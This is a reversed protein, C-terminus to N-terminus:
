GWSVTVLARLVLQFRLRADSTTACVQSVTDWLPFAGGGEGRAGRRGVQFFFFDVYGAHVVM